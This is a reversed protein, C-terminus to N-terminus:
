CDGPPAPADLEKLVSRLLDKAVPTAEHLLLIDGEKAGATLRQTMKGIDTFRTDYARRSWAVVEMGLMRTIPHTFYNRHGVPARFWRPKWGTIEEITRSCETIERWTRWPGAIWFSAQPHTMTHNGLEHGRRLIERALEPHARVKEGIVFFVAKRGSQDLMELLAPTDSEDPGDDITLLIEAGTVRSALPGYLQSVPSLTGWAWFTAIGCGCLVGWPWGYYHWLLVMIGHIGIGLLARALLGPVGALGLFYRVMLVLLGAVNLAIWVGWIFAIWMGGCSGPHQHLWWAGVSALATWAYTQARVERLNMLFPLLNLTLFLAPVLLLWAAVDGLGMALLHLLAAGMVLPVLVSMVMWEGRHEGKLGTVRQELPNPQARPPTFAQFFPLVARNKRMPELTRM